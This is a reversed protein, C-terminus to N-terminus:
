KLDRLQRTLKSLLLDIAKYLNESESKANLIQGPIHVSARSSHILKDVEFVIHIRMINTNQKKLRNLKEETIDKLAPSVEVNKGTIQIQM